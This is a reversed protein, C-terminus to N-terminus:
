LFNFGDTGATFLVSCSLALKRIILIQDNSRSRPVVKVAMAVAKVAMAVAKVVVLVTVLVVAKVAMAVAKVVVLVTVLVVVKVAMAVAKVVV